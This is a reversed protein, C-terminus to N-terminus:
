NVAVVKMKRDDRGHLVALGTGSWTEEAEAVLLRGDVQQFIFSQNETVSLAPGFRLEFGREMALPVGNEDLWVKTEIAYPAPATGDKPQLLAPRVVLLRAPQGQWTVKEDSLLTAENLFTEMMGAPNVLDLAEVDNLLPAENESKKKGWASFHTSTGLWRSTITRVGKPGAEVVAVGHRKEKNLHLPASGRHRLEIEVEIRTKQENKM